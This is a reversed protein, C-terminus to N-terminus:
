SVTPLIEWLYVAGSQHVPHCLGSYTASHRTGLLEDRGALLEFATIAPELPWDDGEYGFILVAKRGEFGSTRLKECDTLASRHQPYPSLIHMLMNDNLKGNDGLMRLLKCEIFLEDTGQSISLDCKQRSINPYNIGFAVSSYRAPHANRM